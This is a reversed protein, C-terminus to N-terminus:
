EKLTTKIINSQDEFEFKHFIAGSKMGESSLNISLEQNPHICSHEKAFVMSFSFINLVAIACIKHPPLISMRSGFFLNKM